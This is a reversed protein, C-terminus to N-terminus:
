KGPIATLTARAGQLAAIAAPNSTAGLLQDIVAIRQQVQSDTPFPLSYFNQNGSNIHYTKLGPTNDGSQGGTPPPEGIQYQDGALGTAIKRWAADPIQNAKAQELLAASAEPYQSSVQALMQYAFDRKGGGSPDQAEHVLGSVGEGNGLGALSMAAYYKWPGQLQELFSVTTSDGYNQLVKFLTGVDWNAPLQGTSAMNLVENVASITEQRHQGPAQQDLLQALQAIESPPTTSQMTQLMAATGEPGGIQGLANIFASRLSSQGLASAGGVSSFNLEQNQDLFERIAPIAAAGQSTLTQLNQKWQDVQQQSLPGHSLDLNTLGAVLQRTYPSPEPRSEAPSSSQGAPTRSIPKLAVQPHAASAREAPTVEHLETDDTSAKAAAAPASEIPKQATEPPSAPAPSRLMKMGFVIGFALLAIGAIAAIFRSSTLSHM